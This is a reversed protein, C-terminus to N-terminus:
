KPGYAWAWRNQWSLAWALRPHPGVYNLILFAQGLSPGVLLSGVLDPGAAWVHAFGAVSALQGAYPRSGQCKGHLAQSWNTEWAGCTMRSAGHVLLHAKCRAGM